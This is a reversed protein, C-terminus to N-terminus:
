TSHHRDSLIQAARARRRQLEDYDDIAKRKAAPSGLADFDVARLAAIGDDIWTLAGKLDPTGLTDLTASAALAAVAQMLHSQDRASPTTHSHILRAVAAHLEHLQDMTLPIEVSSTSNQNPNDRIVELTLGDDRLGRPGVTLTLAHGSPFELVVTETTALVRRTTM